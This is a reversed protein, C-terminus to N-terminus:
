NSEESSSEESNSEEANSENDEVRTVEPKWKSNAGVILVVELYDGDKVKYEILCRESAEQVILLVHYQYDIEKGENFKKMKKMKKMKNFRQKKKDVLRFRGQNYEGGRIRCEVAM